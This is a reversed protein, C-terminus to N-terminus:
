DPPGSGQLTRKQDHRLTWQRMRPPSWLYGYEDFNSKARALGVFDTKVFSSSAPQFRNRPPPFHLVQWTSPVSFMLVPLIVGASAAFRIGKNVSKVEALM